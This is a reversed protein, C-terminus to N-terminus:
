GSVRGSRTRRRQRPPRVPGPTGVSDLAHRVGTTQTSCASAQATWAQALSQLQTEDAEPYYDVYVWAPVLSGAPAQLAM